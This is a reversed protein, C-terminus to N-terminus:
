INAPGTLYQKVIYSNVLYQHTVTTDTTDSYYRYYWNLMLLPDTLYPIM